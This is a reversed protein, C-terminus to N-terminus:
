SGSVSRGIKGTPLWGADPNRHGSLLFPTSVLSRLRFAEDLFIDPSCTAPIHYSPTAPEPFRPVLAILLL